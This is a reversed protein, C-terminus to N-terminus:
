VDNLLGERIFWVFLMYAILSGLAMGVLVDSLFHATLVIRSLGVTVAICLFLPWWRIKLLTFVMMVAAITTSHGSPFSVMLYQTKFFHFGYLHEKFYLEPRNRGCLYKLVDCILGSSATVILMYLCKNKLQINKQVWRYYLYFFAFCVIFYVGRGLQTVANFFLLVTPERHMLMWTAIIRDLYFYSLFAWALLFLVFAFVKKFTLVRLVSAKM